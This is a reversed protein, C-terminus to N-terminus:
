KKAEYTSLFHNLIHTKGDDITLESCLQDVMISIDLFQNDTTIKGKEIIKEVRKFYAEFIDIDYGTKNKLYKNFKLNRVETQMEILDRFWQKLKTLRDKSYHELTQKKLSEYHVSSNFDDTKIAASTDDLHYDIAALVLDRFKKLEIRKDEAALTRDAM